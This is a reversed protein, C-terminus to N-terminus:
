IRFKEHWSIDLGFAIAFGLYENFLRGQELSHAKMYEYLELYKSQLIRARRSAAIQIIKRYSVISLPIILLFVFSIGLITGIYEGFWMVLMILFIAYLIIVPMVSWISTLPQMGYYIAVGKPPGEAPKSTFHIDQKVAEEKIKNKVGRGFVDVTVRDDKLKTVDIVKQGFAFIRNLTEKEYELLHETSKNTRVLYEIKVDPWIVDDMEVKKIDIYGRVILDVITAIIEKDDIEGDIVYGAIAPKLNYNTILEEEMKSMNLGQEM